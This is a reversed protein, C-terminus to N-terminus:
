REEEFNQRDAFSQADLGVGILLKRLLQVCLIGLVVRTHEGTLVFVGELDICIVVVLRFHRDGDGGEISETTETRKSFNGM